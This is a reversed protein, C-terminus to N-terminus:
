WRERVIQRAAIAEICEIPGDVAVLGVDNCVKAADARTFSASGQAAGRGGRRQGGAEQV